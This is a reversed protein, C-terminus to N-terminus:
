RSSTSDEIIVGSQAVRRPRPFTSINKKVATTPAPSPVTNSSARVSLSLAPAVNVPPWAAGAGAPDAGGITLLWCSMTARTFGPTTMMSVISWYSLSAAAPVPKTSVGSPSTSVLLWTMWFEVDIVAVTGLM